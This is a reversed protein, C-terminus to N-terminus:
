TLSELMEVVETKTRDLNDNWVTIGLTIKRVLKKRLYDCPQAVYDKKFERPHTSTADGHCAERIAGLLCLQGDDDQLERQCWGRDQIVKLTKTALESSQM